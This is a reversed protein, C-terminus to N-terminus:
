RQVSHLYALVADIEHPTLIFEPMETPGHRTLIGEALAEALDDIKIRQGITSFIPAAAVPNLASGSTAHCQSCLREVIERGNSVLDDPRTSTPLFIAIALLIATEARRM